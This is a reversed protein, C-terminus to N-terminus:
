EFKDEHTSPYVLQDPNLSIERDSQTINDNILPWSYGM